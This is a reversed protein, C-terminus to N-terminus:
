EFVLTGFYRPALSLGMTPNWCSLEVADQAQKMPLDPRPNRDRNVNLGWTSGPRLPVDLDKIPIAIELTWAKAERGSAARIGSTWGAKRKKNSDFINGSANIIFQYFTKRDHKTDLFLEIADDWWIGYEDRSSTVTRLTQVEPEFARVAFYVHEDDYATWWHTPPEALIGDEQGVLVMPQKVQTWAADDLKGDLRPAVVARPCAARGTLEPTSAARRSLDYVPQFESRMYAVRRDYPPKGVALREADDMCSFLEAVKDFPYLDHWPRAAKPVDPSQEVMGGHAMWLRELGDFFRGMPAAAPGYMSGYYDRLLAEVDLDPDWLCRITVYLNLHAMGRKVMQFNPTMSEAEVFEGRSLGKLARIDAAITRMAMDPVHVLGKRAGRRMNYYEWVYFEAPKRALWGRIHDWDQRKKAPHWYGLRQKCLMVAVNPPLTEIRAPPAKQCAYALSGVLKGPHTEQVERAVRVVFDWVLENLYDPERRPQGPALLQCGACECARTNSDNPVVAFLPEDPNKAFYDGAERVKTSLTGSDSYCILVRSRDKVTECHRKGDIVAFYEPNTEAYAGWWHTFSHNLNVYRVAGCGIRKWWLVAEPDQNFDFGHIYRYVSHPADTVAVGDYIVTSKRPIVEGIEGPLYWRCGQSRLFHYAGFLTGTEGYANIKLERCYTNRTRGRRGGLVRGRYDRGVIVMTGEVARIRFGDPGLGEDSVGHMAALGTKGLSVCVAGTAEAEEVVLEAGSMKRLHDRLERAAHRTSDPADAEVLISGAAVGDRVLVVEGAVLAPVCAFLLVSSVCLWERM